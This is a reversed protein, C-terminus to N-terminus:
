LGFGYTAILNYKVLIVSAVLNKVFAKSTFNCRAFCSAHFSHLTEVLVLKSKPRQCEATNVEERHDENQSSTSPKDEQGLVMFDSSFEKLVVYLTPYEIVTKYELNKLLSKSSDLEYYRAPNSKGQEMKMFVKVGSQSMVYVKLRQRIVPDSKEPDIYTELINFLMKNDPVRKETYEAHSQPFILKLHWYFRQEKKQFFTSNARRKTFGIPLLKLDISYKRARNKLYNLYKSSTQYPVLRDRGACDVLRGADELFRYDSLLNIENFKSLSVFAVKDRVGNCSIDTKHKKVCPLSCSYKMCRPCKYKAEEGGCTECSFLSMKRKPCVTVPSESNGGCGLKEHVVLEDM